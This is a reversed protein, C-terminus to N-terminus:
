EQLDINKCERVLKSHVDQGTREYHWKSVVIIVFVLIMYISILTLPVDKSAIGYYLWLVRGAIALIIYLYNISHTSKKVTADLLAPVLSISSLAVALFGIWVLKM